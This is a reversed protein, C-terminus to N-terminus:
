QLARAIAHGTEMATLYPGIAHAQAGNSILHDEVRGGFRGGLRKVLAVLDREDAINVWHQVSGPWAGMGEKPAPQLRDFIVNRIGLPSGLTVLTDVEWEPHAALCEYAVVSGLSHGIVVRPCPDMAVSVRQHIEARVDPDGLYLAVQKLDWILAREAMRAFYRSNSLANLARQVVMPAGVKTRDDPGSVGDVRAAERWMAELLETEPGPEVDRADYPPISGGKAGPKRRFLNGYFVCRLDEDRVLKAGANDLGSRLHPLWEAQLTPAGKLQQAIGHIAVIM